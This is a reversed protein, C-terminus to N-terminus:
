NSIYFKSKETTILLYHFVATILEVTSETSLSAYILANLAQRMYISNVSLRSYPDLYV